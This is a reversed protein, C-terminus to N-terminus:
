ASLYEIGNECVVEAATCNRILTDPANKQASALLKKRWEDLQRQANSLQKLQYRDFHGNFQGIFDDLYDKQILVCMGLSATEMCLEAREAAPATDPLSAIRHMVEKIQRNANSVTRMLDAVKNKMPHKPNDRQLLEDMQRVDCDSWAQALQSDKNGTGATKASGVTSGATPDSKPESSLQNNKNSNDGTKETAEPTTGATYAFRRVVHPDGEPNLLLQCNDADHPSIEQETHCKTCIGRYVEAIVKGVEGIGNSHLTDKDRKPFGTLRFLTREHCTKCFCRVKDSGKDPVARIVGLTQIERAAKDKCPSECGEAQAQQKTLGAMERSQRAQGLTQAAINVTKGIDSNIKHRHEKLAKEFEKGSIQRAPGKDENDAASDAADENDETFTGDQNLSGASLLYNEEEAERDAVTVAENSDTVENDAAPNDENFLPKATNSVANTKHKNKGKGKNSESSSKGIEKASRNLRSTMTMLEHATWFVVNSMKQVQYSLEDSSLTLDTKVIRKGQFNIEKVRAFTEHMLMKSDDIQRRLRANEKELRSVKQVEASLSQIELDKSRMLEILQEHSLKEYGDTVTITSFKNIKRVM